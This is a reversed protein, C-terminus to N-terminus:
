TPAVLDAKASTIRDNARSRAAAATRAQDAAATTAKQVKAVAKVRQRERRQTDAFRREWTDPATSPAAAEIIERYRM